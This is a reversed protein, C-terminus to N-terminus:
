SDPKSRRQDVAAGDAVDDSECVQRPDGHVTLDIWLKPRGGATYREQCIEVSGFAKASTDDVIRADIARGLRVGGILSLMSLLGTMARERVDLNSADSTMVLSSMRMM